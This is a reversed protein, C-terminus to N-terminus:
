KLSKGIKSIIFGSIPIFFLVFLTLKFSLFIMAGLTFIITLPERVVMELISLYSGSIENVDAITRSIVDGKTTRSYYGLPLSTIKRYLAERMDMLIGNRMFTSFYMAWYNFMNKLLFIVIIVLIMYMLVTFNGHKEISDTLFYNLYNEVYDKLSAATQYDPKTFIEKK